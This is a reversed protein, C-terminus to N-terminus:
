INSKPCPLRHHTYRPRVSPNCFVAHTTGFSRDIEAILAARWLRYDYYAVLLVFGCFTAASVSWILLTATM